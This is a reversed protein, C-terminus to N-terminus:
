NFVERTGMEGKIAKSGLVVSGHKNYFNYLTMHFLVLFFIQFMKLGLVKDSDM